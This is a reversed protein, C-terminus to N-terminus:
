KTADQITAHESIQGNQLSQMQATVKRNCPTCRLKLDRHGEPTIKSYPIKSFKLITNCDECKRTGQLYHENPYQECHKNFENVDDFIPFPPHINCKHPGGIRNPATTTTTATPTASTNNANPDNTSM